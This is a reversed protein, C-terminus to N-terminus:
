FIAPPTIEGRVHVPHGIGVLRYLRKSTEVPMRVCGHSAPHLPLRTAGHLAIGGVFYLSNFMAGLQGTTWGPARRNVTFDGVPTVADGCRGQYCWRVEVGTSVHSYLVPRRDRYLTLLQRSLNVEVRNAAGNPVLPRVKPKRRLARWVESGVAGKPTLRHAKQVAYVGFKTQEDYVGNVKGFYYGGDRMRRQLLTVVEGRDGPRLVVPKAVTPPEEPVTLPEDQLIPREEWRLVPSEDRSVVGEGRAGPREGRGVPGIGRVVPSGGQGAPSTGRVVPSEERDEASGGPAEGRAVPVGERAPPAEEAVAPVPTLLGCGAALLAIGSVTIRM